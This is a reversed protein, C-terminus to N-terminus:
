AIHGHRHREPRRINRSYRIQIRCELGLQHAPLEANHVRVARECRAPGRLIDCLLLADWHHSGEMRFITVIKGPNDGSFHEQIGYNFSDYAEILRSILHPHRLLRHLVDKVTVPVYAVNFHHLVSAVQHPIIGRIEKFLGPAFKANLFTFKDQQVHSLM